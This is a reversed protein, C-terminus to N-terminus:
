CPMEAVQSARSRTTTANVPPGSPLRQDPPRGADGGAALAGVQEGYMDGAAVPQGAGVGRLEGPLPHQRLAEAAGVVLNEAGVNGGRQQVEGPADVRGM